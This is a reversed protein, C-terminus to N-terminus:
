QISWVNSARNLNTCWIKKSWAIFHSTRVSQAPPPQLGRRLLVTLMCLILYRLQGLSSKKKLFYEYTHTSKYFIQLLHNKLLAILSMGQVIWPHAHSRVGRQALNQAPHSHTIKAQYWWKIQLKHCILIALVVWMCHKWGAQGTCHSTWQKGVCSLTTVTSGSLMFYWQPKLSFVM